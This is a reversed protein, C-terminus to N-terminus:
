RLWPPIYGEPIPIHADNVHIHPTQVDHPSWHSTERVIEEATGGVPYGAERALDVLADLDNASYPPRHGPTFRQAEEIWGNVIQQDATHRGTNRTIGYWNHGPDAIHGLVREAGGAAHSAAGLGTVGPIVAGLVDLGLDNLHGRVNGCGGSQFDQSLQHVDYAIFGLDLLTDVIQGSPDRTNTPDNAAYAYLNRGDPSDRFGLSDRSLWRGLNPAYVRTPTFHLGSDPHVLYGGFGIPSDYGAYGPAAYTSSRSGWPDYRWSRVRRGTEDLLGVVSGLHDRLYYFRHGDQAFGEAFVERLVHTASDREQVIQEGDWVFYHTSSGVTWSALRGLGDYAFTTVLGWTNMSQLQNFQNWSYTYFGDYTVNGRDDSTIAVSYSNDDV